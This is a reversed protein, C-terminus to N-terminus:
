KRKKPLKLPPLGRKERFKNTQIENASLKPPEKGLLKKVRKIIQKVIPKVARLLLPTAAAAATAVVAISATTTVQNTSPIGKIIQDTITIDEKIPICQTGVLRYETIKKTGSDTLTGVPQTLEQAETPCEIKTTAADKPIEPTEAKPTETNGVPPVPAVYEYDLQDPSYDIPNYSPMGADCYVKVGKPDDTELMNNEEVEHAEVCGPMDVIPVGIESSVPPYIPIAQPPELLYEPTFPIKIIDIDGGRLKIEPIESM